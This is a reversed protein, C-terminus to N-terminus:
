RLEQASQGVKGWSNGLQLCTIHYGKLSASFTYGGLQASLEWCCCMNVGVGKVTDLSSWVASRGNRSQLPEDSSVAWGSGHLLEPLCLCKQSVSTLGCCLSSSSLLLKNHWQSPSAAGVLLIEGKGQAKEGSDLTCKRGAGNPFAPLACSANFFLCLCRWM